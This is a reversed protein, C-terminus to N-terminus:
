KNIVNREKKLQDDWRPLPEIEFARFFFTNGVDSIKKFDEDELKFDYVSLVDKMREVKSSTTVTVIGHEHVWKLLIKSESANYKEALEKLLPMLPGEKCKTIPSLPGYAEVQINNEKCFNIINPSQNQLYPHFEIQLVQPITECNDKLIQLNPVDFNSVGINRALGEKQLKIMENWCDVLTLGEPTDNTHLLFLDIYELNMQKLGTKLSAYPGRISGDPLVNPTDPTKSNYKDAIFLDSRSAKGEHKALYDNVGKGVDPRTTYFEATDLHTFGMDLAEVISKVLDPDTNSPNSASVATEESAKKKWQWKTGSGFGIIPIKDKTQPLEITYASM